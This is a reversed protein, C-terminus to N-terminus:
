EFDCEKEINLDNYECQLESFGQKQNIIRILARIDSPKHLNLLTNDDGIKIYYDDIIKFFEKETM